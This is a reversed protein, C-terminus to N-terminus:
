DYKRSFKIKKSNKKKKTETASKNFGVFKKDCKANLKDLKKEARM